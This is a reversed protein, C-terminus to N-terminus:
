EQEKEIEEINLKTKTKSQILIHSYAPYKIYKSTKEIQDKFFSVKIADNSPVLTIYDYNNESLLLLIDELSTINIDYIIGQSVVEEQPNEELLLSNLLSDETNEEKPQEDLNESDINPKSPDFM